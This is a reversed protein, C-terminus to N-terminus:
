ALMTRTVFEGITRFLMYWPFSLYTSPHYDHEWALKTTRSKRLAKGFLRIFNATEGRHSKPLAALAQGVHLPCWGWLIAEVATCIIYETAHETDHRCTNIAIALKGWVIAQLQKKSQITSSVFQQFKAMKPSVTTGKCFSHNAIQLSFTVANNHISNEEATVTCHLFNIFHGSEELKPEVDPPWCKKITAALCTCCFIKSFVLADDVHLLAQICRTSPMGPVFSGCRRAEDKSGYMKRSNYDLDFATIPPSTANGMALGDVREFITEGVRFYRDRHVYQLARLLDDFTILRHTRPLPKRGWYVGGVSKLEKHLMFGKAGAGRVQEVAEAIERLCRERNVLKFFATADVKILQIRNFKTGCGHCVGPTRWHTRLHKAKESFEEPVRSQNWLIFSRKKDTCM